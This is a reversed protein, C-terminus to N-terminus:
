TREIERFIRFSRAGARSYITDFMEKARVRAAADDKAKFTQSWRFHEGDIRRFEAVYTHYSPEGGLSM